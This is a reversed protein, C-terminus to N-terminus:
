AVSYRVGAFTAACTLKLLSIAGAMIRILQRRSVYDRM